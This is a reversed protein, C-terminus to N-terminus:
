GQRLAPHMNVALARTIQARQVPDQISEVAKQLEGVDAGQPIGPADAERRAMLYDFQGPQPGPVGKLMPGGPMPQSAIAEVQKKVAELGDELPKVAEQVSKMVPELLSKAIAEIDVPEQEKTSKVLAPNADSRTENARVSNMETNAPEATAGTPVSLGAPLGGSPESSAGTEEPESPVTQHGPAPENQQSEETAVEGTGSEVSAGAPEPMSTSESVTGAQLAKLFPDLKADIAEEIAKKMEPTVDDEKSEQPEEGDPGLLDTLHKRATKLASVSASSLRRGAKQMDDPHMAELQETFSLRAAIGLACQVMQAACDLDSADEWDYEDPEAEERDAAQELRSKIDALQSAIARLNAADQAEWAASGPADGEGDMAKSVEVGFKKAAARIKPMAKEGFPSQSARALANRVHAADHVPFHRKSRPTTKGSEDKTGGPEIYAFDSDPLDNAAATSIEAKRLGEIAAEGKGDDPLSKMLLPSTGNAPGMVGDVRHIEAKTIETLDEDPEAVPKRRAM